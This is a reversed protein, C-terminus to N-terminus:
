LMLLARNLCVCLSVLPVDIVNKRERKVGKQKTQKETLFKM